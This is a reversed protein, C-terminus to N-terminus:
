CNLGKDEILIFIFLTAILKEYILLVNNVNDIM